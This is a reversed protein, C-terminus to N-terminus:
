QCCSLAIQRLLTSLSSQINACSFMGLGKDESWPKLGTRIEEPMKSLYWQHDEALSTALTGGDNRHKVKSHYEYTNGCIDTLRGGMAHLVAEPACTDWKKCGPSAFLYAHAKGEILLLVQSQWFARCALALNVLMYIFKVIVLDDFLMILYNIDAYYHCWQYCGFLVFSACHLHTVKHGAGGVKLVQTPECAEIAQKVAETM